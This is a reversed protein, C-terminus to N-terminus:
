ATQKAAVDCLDVDLLPHPGVVKVLEFALTTGGPQSDGLSDFLHKFTLEGATLYLVDGDADRVVDSGTETQTFPFIPGVLGEDPILGPPVESKRVREVAIEELVYADRIRLLVDGSTDERWM